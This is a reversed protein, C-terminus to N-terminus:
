AAKRKKPELSFVLRLGLAEAVKELTEMTAKKYAGKELRSLAPQKTGIRKALEAQSVGSGERAKILQKMLDYEPEQEKWAKKFAPRKMQDALFNDFTQGIHRNKM